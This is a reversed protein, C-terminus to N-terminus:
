GRSYDEPLSEPSQPGKAKILQEVSGAARAAGGGRREELMQGLSAEYNSSVRRVLAAAAAHNDLSGATMSAVAKSKNVSQAGSTDVVVNVALCASLLVLM